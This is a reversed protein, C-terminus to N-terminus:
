QVPSFVGQNRNLSAWERELMKVKVEAEKLSRSKEEMDSKAREITRLCMDILDGGSGESSSVRSSVLSALARCVKMLDEKGVAGVCAKMGRASSTSTSTSTTTTTTPKSLAHPQPMKNSSIPRLVKSSSAASVPARKWSSLTTERVSAKVKKASADESKHARSHDEITLQKVQEELEGIKQQLQKAEERARTEAEMVADVEAMSTLREKESRALEWELHKVKSKLKQLLPDSVAQEQGVDALPILSSMEINILSLARSLSSSLLQVQTMIDEARTLERQTRSLELQMDAVEQEKRTLNVFMLDVEKASSEVLVALDQMQKRFASRESELEHQLVDVRKQLAEGGVQEEFELVSVGATQKGTLDMLGQELAFLSYSLQASCESLEKVLHGVIFGVFESDVMSVSGISTLTKDSVEQHVLEMERRAEALEAALAGAREAEGRAEELEAALAGAREAEGRAEELEAALAGAREAERRAEALEAALAGAREAEGRAEELEAALAGAREAERRAEALEAALARRETIVMVAETKQKHEPPQNDANSPTDTLKPKNTTAKVHDDFLKAKAFKMQLFENEAKMISYQALLGNIQKKYEMEIRDSKIRKELDSRVIEQQLQTMVLGLRMGQGEIARLKEDVVSVLKLQESLKRETIELTDVADSVIIAEQMTKQLKCSDEFEKLLSQFDPELKGMRCGEKYGQLKILMDIKSRSKCRLNVQMNHYKELIHRNEDFQMRLLSQADHQLQQSQKLEKKMDKMEKKKRKLYEKYKFEYDKVHRLTKDLKMKLENKEKELRRNEGRYRELESALVTARRMWSLKEHQLNKIIDEFYSSRHVECSVVLSTPTLVMDLEGESGAGQACNTGWGEESPGRQLSQPDVNMEALEPTIDSIRPFDQPSDPLSDRSASALERRDRLPEM